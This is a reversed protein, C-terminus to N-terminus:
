RKLVGLRIYFKLYSPLQVKEVPICQIGGQIDKRPVICTKYKVLQSDHAWQESANETGM